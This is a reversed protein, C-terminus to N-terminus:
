EAVAKKLADARDIRVFYRGTHFGPTRLLLPFKLGHRALAGAADPSSLVERALTVAAPAIVGPVGALRRANDTRGTALVALPANLVPAGSFAAVSRAAVLSEGTLDADGIRM